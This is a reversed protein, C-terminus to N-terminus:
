SNELRTKKSHCSACLAQLNASDLAAGGRSLPTIHDVQSSPAQCSRCLPEQRLTWASLTKWRKSGRFKYHKIQEANDQRKDFARKSQRHETCYHGKIAKARCQPYLCNTPIAKM